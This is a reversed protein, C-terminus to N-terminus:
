TKRTEIHSIAIACTVGDRVFRPAVLLAADGAAALAAAECLSPTGAYALSMESVTLTRPAAAELARQDVVIMSIGLKEAAAIIGAEHAKMVGTALMDPWCGAFGTQAMTEGLVRLITQTPTDKRCGIGAVIWRTTVAESVTQDLGVANYAHGAAM